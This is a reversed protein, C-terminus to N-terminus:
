YNRLECVNGNENLIKRDQERRGSTKTGTEDLVEEYREVLHRMGVQRAVRRTMLEYFWDPVEPDFMTTQHVQLVVVTLIISMSTLSMNTTLYVIILPVTESTAPINEAILLMFVSFALLVTIGLSVKEGSDPPLLFGVLSLISLWVCPIIINVLFYLIRRRILIYFTLDPYPEDPCCPYYVVNRVVQISRLKWEGSEVYNLLDVTNNLLDLQLGSYTWSGFKLTCIQDDFPFYTVDIKCSSRFKVPPPWFVRGDPRVMAKSQM